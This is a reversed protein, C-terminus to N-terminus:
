MKRIMTVEQPGGKDDAYHGVIVGDIIWKHEGYWGNNGPITELPPGFTAELHAQMDPFSEEFPGPRWFMLRTLVVGAKGYNPPEPMLWIRCRLGSLAECELRLIGSPEEVVHEALGERLRALPTGWALLVDPVDVQFDRGISQRQDPM